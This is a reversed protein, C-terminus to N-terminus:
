KNIYNPSLFDICGIFLRALKFDDMTHRNTFVNFSYRNRFRSLIPTIKKWTFLYKIATDLSLNSSNCADWKLWTFCCITNISASLSDIGLFMLSKFSYFIGDPQFIAFNFSYVDGHWGLRSATALLWSIILFSPLM